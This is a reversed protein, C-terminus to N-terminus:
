HSRVITGGGKEIKNVYATIYIETSSDSSFYSRILVSPQGVTSDGFSLFSLITIARNVLLSLFHRFPTVFAVNSGATVAMMVAYPHRLSTCMNDAVTALM